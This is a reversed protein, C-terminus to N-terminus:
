QTGDSAEREWFWYLRKEDATAGVFRWEGCGDDEPPEPDSCDYDRLGAQYGWTTKYQKMAGGESNGRLWSEIEARVLQARLKLIDRLLNMPPSQPRDGGNYSQFRAELEDLRKRMADVTSM